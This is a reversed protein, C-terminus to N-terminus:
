TVCALIVTFLDCLFKRVELTLAHVASLVSVLCSVAPVFMRLRLSFPFSCLFRIEPTLPLSFLLCSSPVHVCADRGCVDTEDCTYVILSSPHTSSPSDINETSSLVLFDVFLSSPHFNAQPTRVLRRDRTVSRNM